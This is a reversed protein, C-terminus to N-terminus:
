GFRGLQAVIEALEEGPDVGLDGCIGVAQQTVRAAQRVRGQAILARALRVYRIEEMPDAAISADLLRDAEDLDGRAIADEAVLDLLALRRRRLRERALTTWDVYRDAPLLEGTWWALALRATGARTEPASALAAAAEREFRDADVTVGAALTLADDRRVVLEGSAAKIRNLLNRLRARGTDINLNDWLLEIAQDTTLTGELALLKILTAPRGPPPSVDRGDREVAFRGLLIVHTTGRVVAARARPQAIALLEPERRTLRDPDGTEAVLRLSERVLGACGAADDLRALAAARMLLRQWRDGAYALPSRDLRDLAELARGADGFMVEFRVRASLPEEALPTGIAREESRALDRRAGDEDGLVMRLEAAQSLFEIGALGEFWGSGHSEAEDLAAFASARDRREGALEAASWSVYGITRPDGLRKAIGAAERLAVQAEDLRGMTMAIEAVYTLTGARAADAAPRLSLARDLRAAALEYAGTTFDVGYGLAQHAEAEWGREDALNFCGIALELEERADATANATDVTLKCISRALHARGRTALEAPHAAVLVVDAAAIAGAMDGGRAIAMAREAEIARRAPGETRVVTQARDLWKTRLRPLREAAQVLRVLVEPHDALVADPVDSLVADLLALGARTLADRPQSELLMCAGMFDHGRHLLSAAQALEGARAYIQAVTRLQAPAITRSPIVERVPDPLDAWGDARFRIPFGAELLRELAGAGGIASVVSGSLVPLDVLMEVLAATESDTAELLAGVLARMVTGSGDAANSSMAGSAAAVVVAAPWGDTMALVAAVESESPSTGRVAAIVASAEGLDFRLDDVGVRLGGAAHELGALPRGLRRGSIVFRANSSIEVALEALWVTAAADARHVEDIALLVGHESGAMRQALADITASPDEVLVADALAALGAHRCGLAISALLRTLNQRDRLVVRVTAVELAAAMEAWATTKGYGGPAELLVIRADALAHQLRPRPVLAMGAKARMAERARVKDPRNNRM